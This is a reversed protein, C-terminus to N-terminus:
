FSFSLGAYRVLYISNRVAGKGYKHYDSTLFNPGFIKEQKLLLFSSLSVHVCKKKTQKRKNRYSPFTFGGCQRIIPEM